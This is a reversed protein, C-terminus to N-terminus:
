GNWVHLKLMEKYGCCGDTDIYRRLRNPNEDPPRVYPGEKPRQEGVYGYSKLEDYFSQDGNPIYDTANELEFLTVLPPRHLITYGLKQLIRSCEGSSANDRNKTSADPDVIVYAKFRYRGGQGGYRPWISDDNNSSENNQNDHTTSNKMQQQIPVWGYSNRRISHLLAAAGDVMTGQSKPICKTITTVYAVVPPLKEGTIPDVDPPLPPVPDPKNIKWFDYSKQSETKAKRVRWLRSLQTPSYSSKPSPPRTPEEINIKPPADNIVHTKHHLSRKADKNSNRFNNTNTNSASESGFAPGSNGVVISRYAFLQVNLIILLLAIICLNIPNFKAFFRPQKGGNKLSSQHRSPARSSPLVHDDEDNSLSSISAQRRRQM